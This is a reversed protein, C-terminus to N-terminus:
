ADEGARASAKAPASKGAAKEFYALNMKERVTDPHDGAQISLIGEIILENVLKEKTAKTKIKGEFPLWLLNALGVGYLTAIFALSISHALESPDDLGGGLVTILGMVTGIIGMTPSFGGAAGFVKAGRAYVDNQLYMDWSLIDKTTESETGDIILRVGKEIFPNKISTMENELALLGERRAIESFRVMTNITGVEDLKQNTFIVKFMRGLLKLDQMPFFLIVAGITGGLIIPISTPSYIGGIDGGEWLYGGIVGGFAILIGLLSTIDM